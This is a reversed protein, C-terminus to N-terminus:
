APLNHEPSWLGRTYWTNGLLISSKGFVKYRGAGCPPYTGYNHAVTWESTNVQGYYLLRCSYWQSGNWRYLQTWAQISRSTFYFCNGEMPRVRYKVYGGGGGHSLETEHFRCLDRNDSVIQQDYAVHASASSAVMLQFLVGVCAAAVTRRGWRASGSLRGVIM